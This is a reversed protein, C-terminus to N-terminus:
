SGDTASRKIHREHKERQRKKRKKEATWDERKQSIIEDMKDRQIRGSNCQCVTKETRDPIKRNAKYKLQIFLGCNYCQTKPDMPDDDRGIDTRDVPTIYRLIHTLKTYLQATRQHQHFSGLDKSRLDNLLDVPYNANFMHQHVYGVSPTHNKTKAWARTRAAEEKITIPQHSASTVEEKRERRKDDRKRERKLTYDSYEDLFPQLLEAESEVDDVFRLIGKLMEKENM